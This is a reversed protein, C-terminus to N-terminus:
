VHVELAEVMTSARKRPSGQAGVFVTTPAPQRLLEPLVNVASFLLLAIQSGRRQESEHEVCIILGQPRLTIRSPIIARYPVDANGLRRVAGYVQLRTRTLAFLIRSSSDAKYAQVSLQFCPCADLTTGRHSETDDCPAVTICTPWCEGLARM